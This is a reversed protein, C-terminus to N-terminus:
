KYLFTSNEVRCTKNQMTQHILNLVLVGDSDVTARFDFKILNPEACSHLPTQIPGLRDREVELQELETEPSDRMANIMDIQDMLRNFASNRNRFKIELRYEKGKETMKRRRETKKRVSSPEVGMESM